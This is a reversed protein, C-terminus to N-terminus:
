YFGNHHYKQVFPTPTYCSPSIQSLVLIFPLLSFRRSLFSYMSVYLHYTNGELSCDYLNKHFDVFKFQFKNQAGEPLNM